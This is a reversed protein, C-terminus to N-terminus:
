SLHFVLVPTCSHNFMGFVITVCWIFLVLSLLWIITCCIWFLSSLIWYGCIIYFRVYFSLLLFRGRQYFSYLGVVSSVNYEITLFHFTKKKLDLTSSNQISPSITCINSNEDQLLECQLAPYLSYVISISISIYCFLCFHGSM